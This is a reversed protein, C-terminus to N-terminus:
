YAPNIEISFGSRNRDYRDRGVRRTDLIEGDRSVVVLVPNGRRSARVFYRGREYDVDRVRYGRRELMRAVDRPGFRDRRDEYHRRDRDRYREQVLIGGEDSDEFYIAAGSDRDYRSQALASGAGATLLVAASLAIATFKKM